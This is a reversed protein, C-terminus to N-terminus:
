KTWVMRISEISLDVRGLSFVALTAPGDRRLTCLTVIDVFETAPLQSVPVDAVCAVTGDVQTFTIRAAPETEGAHSSRRMRVTLRLSGEPFHTDPLLAVPREGRRAEAFRVPSRSRDDLANAAALGDLDAARYTVSLPWRQYQAAIAGILLVATAAAVVPSRLVPILAQLVRILPGSAIVYLLPLVPIFFRYSGITIVHVILIAGVAAPLIWWRRWGDRGLSLLGALVLALLWGGGVVPAVIALPVAGTTARWIWTAAPHPVNWGDRLVGFNYLVKRGALQMADLPSSRIFAFGVPEIMGVLPENYTGNALPNNGLQFAIPGKESILILRQYHVTQATSWLLAPTAAVAVLVLTVKLSTPGISRDRGLQRWVWAAALPVVLVFTERTLVLVAGALGAVVARSLVDRSTSAETIRISLVLFLSLLAATLM